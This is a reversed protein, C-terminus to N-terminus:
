ASHLVVATPVEGVYEPDFLFRVRQETTEFDPHFRGVDHRQILLNPDTRAAHKLPLERVEDATFRLGEGDRCCEMTRWTAYVQHITDDDKRPPPSGEVYQRLREVERAGYQRTIEVQLFRM